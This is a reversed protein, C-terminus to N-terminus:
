SLVGRVHLYCAEGFRQSKDVVSHQTVSTPQCITLAKCGTNSFHESRIEASIGAMRANEHYEETGRRLKLALIEMVSLGRGELDKRLKM